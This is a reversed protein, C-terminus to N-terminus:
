TEFFGQSTQTIVNSAPQWVLRPTIRERVHTTKSIINNMRHHEVDPRVDSLCDFFNLLVIGM